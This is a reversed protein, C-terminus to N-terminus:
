NGIITNNDTNVNEIGRNFDIIRFDKVTVNSIKPRSPDSGRDNSLDIGRSDGNGQITYGAGNVVVNSKQVQIGASLNGTLVYVEDNRQIKDTGEVSGDERIYIRDQANVQKVVLFPAVVVSFAFLLVFVYSLFKNTGRKM